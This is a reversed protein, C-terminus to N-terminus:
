FWIALERLGAEISDSCHIGNDAVNHASKNNLFEATSMLACRISGTEPLTAKGMAARFEALTTETEFTVEHAVLPKGKYYSVLDAFFPKGEHEGYHAAITAEECVVKKSRLVNGGMLTVISTVRGERGLSVTLPKTLVIATVM